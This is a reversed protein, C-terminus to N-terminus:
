LRTFAPLAVAVRSPVYIEAAREVLGRFVTFIQTRIPDGVNALLNSAESLVNPILILRTPPAIIQILADFDGVEYTDLRKHRRIYARSTAGVALLVVLQADLLIASAKPFSM